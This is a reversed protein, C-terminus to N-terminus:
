DEGGDPVPEAPRSSPPLKALLLARTEPDAAEKLLRTYIERAQDTRGAAELLRAAGLLADTRYPGRLDGAQTYADLAGSTDGTAERGRALGALAEQRLYESGPSTALYETYATAAAAAEGARALAHARYLGALRGFPTHPHASAVEAFAGAAEAYRAADFQSQASRFAVAAAESRGARWRGVALGILAVAVVAGALGLVLPRHRGAWDVAQGTLTEFEDPKRLDKRRIKVRKTHQPM